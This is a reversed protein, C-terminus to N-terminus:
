LSFLVGLVFQRFEEDAGLDKDLFPNIYQSFRNTPPTFPNGGSFIGEIGTTFIEYNSDVEYDYDKGSYTMRWTDAFGKENSGLNTRRPNLAARQHAFAFEMEKLGTLSDEFAHGLEHVATSYGAEFGQTKNFSMAITRTEKQWYGRGAASVNIQDFTDGAANLWDTPYVETAKKVVEMGRDSTGTLKLSGGGLERVEALTERAKEAYIQAYRETGPIINEPLQQRFVDLERELETIEDRLRKGTDSFTFTQEARGTARKLRFEDTYQSLWEDPFDPNPSTRKLEQYRQQIEADLDALEKSIQQQVGAEYNLKKTELLNETTRINKQAQAIQEPTALNDLEKKVRNGIERDIDKGVDKIDDLHQQTKPGLQQIKKPGRLGAVRVSGHEDAVDAAISQGNIKSLKPELKEKVTKVVAPNVPTPAKIPADVKTKSVKTFRDGKVTLVPGLEGHDQITIARYDIARAGPDSIGFRQEVAQHSADLRIQDIVQGPDDQGYIPMEGCDCGPHIPLLDAKRYRQTSAVYCLACNESGSLTRLYGVIRDNAGRSALGANRRALQVDTRALDVARRAGADLATDMDNGKSLSTWMEKFPRALVTDDTVGNRLVQTTLDSARIVPSTFREGSLEAIQSYFSTTYTAMDKKYNALAPSIADVYRSIDDERWSGLGLFSSRAAQAAAELTSASVKHYADALELKSVM